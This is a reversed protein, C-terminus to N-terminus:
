HSVDSLNSVHHYSTVPTDTAVLGHGPRALAHGPKATTPARTSSHMM